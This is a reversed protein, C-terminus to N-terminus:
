SDQSTSNSLHVNVNVTGTTFTTPRQQQHHPHLLTERDLERTITELTKRRRKMEISHSDRGKLKSEKDRRHSALEAGVTDGNSTSGIEEGKNGEKQSTTDSQRHNTVETNKQDTVSHKQYTIIFPTPNQELKPPQNPSTPPSPNDSKPTNLRYQTRLEQNELIGPNYQMSHHPRQPHDSHRVEGSSNAFHVSNEQRSGDSGSGHRVQQTSEVIHHQPRAESPWSSPQHVHTPMQHLRPQTWHVFQTGRQWQRAVAEHEASYYYQQNHKLDNHNHLDVKTTHTKQAIPLIPRPLTLSFHSTSPLQQVAAPMPNSQISSRVSSVSSSSSPSSSSLSSSPAQCRCSIHDEVSIIAKDYQAKKNIYQIKIM